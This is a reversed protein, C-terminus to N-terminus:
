PQGVMEDDEEGEEGWLEADDDDGDAGATKAVDVISRQWCATLWSAFAGADPAAALVLAQVTSLVEECLPTLGAGRGGWIESLETRPVAAADHWAKADLTGVFHLQAHVHRSLEAVAAFFSRQSRRASEGSGAGAGAVQEYHSWFRPVAHSALRERVGEMAWALLLDHLGRECLLDLHARLGVEAACRAVFGCGGGVAGALLEDQAKVVAHVVESWAATVQALEPTWAAPHDRQHAAATGWPQSVSFTAVPM